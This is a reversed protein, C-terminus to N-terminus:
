PLIWISRILELNIWPSDTFDAMRSPAESLNRGTKIVISVVTIPSNGRARPNFIPLSAFTGRALVMIPPMTTAVAM